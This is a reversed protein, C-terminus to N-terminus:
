KLECLQKHKVKHYYMESLYLDEEGAKPDYFLQISSSSAKSLDRLNRPHCVPHGGTEKPLCFM